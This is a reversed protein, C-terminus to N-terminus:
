VPKSAANPDAFVARYNDLTSESSQTGIIGTQFSVWFVVLIFGVLFIMPVLAIPLLPSM